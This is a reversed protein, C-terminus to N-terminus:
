FIPYLLLKSLRKIGAKKVEVVITALPHRPMAVVFRGNDGMGSNSTEAKSCLSPEVEFVDFGLLTDGGFKFMTAEEDHSTFNLAM